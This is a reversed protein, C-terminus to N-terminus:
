IYKNWEKECIHEQLLCKISEDIEISKKENYDYHILVAKGTTCLKNNQYLAHTINVSSRGIKEIATKILIEKGYFVESYFDCSIHAMILNSNKLDLDPSFFRFIPERAVEFWVSYSNNNIHGMADTESFRPEMTKLFM